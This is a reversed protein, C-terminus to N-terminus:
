RYLAKTQSFSTAQTPVAECTLLQGEFIAIKFADYTYNLIGTASGYCDDVALGTLDAWFNDYRFAVGDSLVDWEGFGADGTVVMDGTLTIINSEYPEPDAMLVPVTLVIPAPLAATGTITISTGAVQSLDHYESYTGTVTVVDGVAAGSDALYVYIGNQVGYPAEIAFFGNTGVVGTVIVDTITVETDLPVDGNQINYVVGAQVAGACILLALIIALKKM